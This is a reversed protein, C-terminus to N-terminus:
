AALYWAEAYGDSEERSHGGHLYTVIPVPGTYPGPTKLFEPRRDRGDAGGPSNAWHLTPDVHLRVTRLTRSASSV